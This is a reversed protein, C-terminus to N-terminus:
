FGFFDLSLMVVVLVVGAPQIPVDIHGRLCSM